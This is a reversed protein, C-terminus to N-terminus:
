PYEKFETNGTVAQINRRAMKHDPDIELVKKWQEIAKEYDGSDYYAKGLNLYANISSPDLQAAKELIPISERTKGQMLFLGGINRLASVENPNIALTRKFADIAEENKQLKMYAIGLNYHINANQPEAAAALEGWYIANQFDEQYIKALAINYYENGFNSREIKEFTLFINLILVGILATLSVWFLRLKQKRFTDFLWYIGDSAFLLIFPIAILRYRGCVFFIIVSLFYLLIFSYILWRKKWDSFGVIFGLIALPLFFYFQTFPIRLLFSYKQHFYYNFNLPIEYGSWFLVGKRVILTLWSVPESTIFRLAKQYWFRSVEPPSLKKGTEAEAVRQADEVNIASVSSEMGEPAEWMGSAGRHNGIYFNIGGHSTLLTISGDALYNHTTTLALPVCLGLMWFAISQLRRKLSATATKNLILFLIPIPLVVLYNPRGCIALAFSLGSLIVLKFDGRESARILLYFALSSLFVVLSTALLNGEFFLIPAYLSQIAAAGMAACRSFFRKGILFTLGCALAGLLFQVFRILFVREIGIKYFLALFYVYLPSLYFSRELIPGQEIVQRALHNFHASDHIFLSATPNNLQLQIFYIMRIIFAVVLIALFVNRDDSHFSALFKKFSISKKPPTVTQKKNRKKM